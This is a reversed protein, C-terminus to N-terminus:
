CSFCHQRKRPFVKTCQANGDPRKPNCTRQECLWIKFGPYPCIGDNEMKHPGRPNHIQYNCLVYFYEKYVQITESNTHKNLVIAQKKGITNKFQNQHARIFKICHILNENTCHDFNKGDSITVTYFVYIQNTQM